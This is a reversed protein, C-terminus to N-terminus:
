RGGDKGTRERYATRGCESDCFRKAHKPKFAKGCYECTRWGDPIKKADAPETPQMAKWRGYSLGSAIAQSVERSLKDPENTKKM